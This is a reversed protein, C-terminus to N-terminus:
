SLDDDPAQPIDLPLHVADCLNSSQIDFTVALDEVKHLASRITRKNGSKLAERFAVLLGEIRGGIIRLDPSDLVREIEKRRAESFWRRARQGRRRVTPKRPKAAM